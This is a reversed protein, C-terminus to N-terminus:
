YLPLETARINTSHHHSTAQSELGCWALRRLKDLDALIKAVLTCVKYLDSESRKLHYTNLDSESAVDQVLAMDELSVRSLLTLSVAFLNGM